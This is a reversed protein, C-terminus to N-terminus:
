KLWLKMLIADDKNEFYFYFIHNYQGSEYFVLGSCNENAWENLSDWSVSYSTFDLVFHNRLINEVLTTGVIYKLDDKSLIKLPNFSM